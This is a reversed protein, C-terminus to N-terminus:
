VLIDGLSANPVPDLHLLLTLSALKGIPNWLLQPDTKSLKRSIVMPRVVSSPGVANM